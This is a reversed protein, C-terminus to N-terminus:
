WTVGSAVDVAYRRGEPAPPREPNLPKTDAGPLEDTWREGNLWVVLAPVFQKDTSRAYAQGFRTVDAITTELGRDAAVKRFKELSKKRETKKPWHAWAKEFDAEGVRVAPAPSSARTATSTATATSCEDDISEGYCPTAIVSEIPMSDANLISQVRPSKWAALDPERDFHKQLEFAVVKRIDRSGIAGFALAMSEPLKPHKLLGDHKIFSRVLIEETTEDALVFGREQLRAARARVEQASGNSSLAAIRKPRWDVVGAYSMTPHSLLQMYLFQAGDDLNCWDDDSWIDIRLSARDRAM